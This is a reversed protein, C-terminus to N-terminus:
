SNGEGGFGDPFVFDPPAIPKPRPRVGIHRFTRTRLERNAKEERKTEKEAQQTAARIAAEREKRRHERIEDLCGNLMMAADRPIYGFNTARTMYDEVTLYGAEVFGCLKSIAVEKTLTQLVAIDREVIKQAREYSAGASIIARQYQDRDLRGHLFSRRLKALIEKRDLGEIFTTANEVATQAEADSYDISQLSYRYTDYDIGGQIVLRWLQMPNLKGDVKARQIRTSKRMVEALSQADKTGVGARNLWKPLDEFSIVGYVYGQRVTGLSIDTRNQARWHLRAIEETFGGRQAWEKLKGQWAESFGDDLGFEGAMTEDGIGDNLWRVCTEPGPINETLMEFYLLDVDSTFGQRKIAASYTEDSMLGARNLCNADKFSIAPLAARYARDFWPVCDGNIKCAFEWEDKSLQGSLRAATAAGTSLPNVQCSYNVSQVLSNKEAPTQTSFFSETATALILSSAYYDRRSNSPCPQPLVSAMIRRIGQILINIVFFIGVCATVVGGGIMGLDMEDIKKSAQAWGWKMQANLGDLAGERFPRAFLDRAAQWNAPDCGDVATEPGNIPIPPTNDTPPAACQADPQAWPPPWPQDAPPFPEDIPEGITHIPDPEDDSDLTTPARQGIFSCDPNDPTPICEEPPIIEVPPQHGNGNITATSDGMCDNPQDAPPGCYILEGDAFDWNGPDNVGCLPPPIDIPYGFPDTTPPCQELPCVPSDPPLTAPPEGPGSNTGAWLMYKQNPDCLASWTTGDSDLSVPAGEPAIWEGQYNPGPHSVGGTPKMAAGPSLHLQREAPETIYLDYASTNKWTPAVWCKATEPMGNADFTCGPLNCGSTDIPPNGPDIGIPPQIIPPVYPPQHGINEPIDFVDGEGVNVTSTPVQSPFGAANLVLDTLAQGTLAEPPPELQRYLSTLYAAAQEISTDLHEAVRQRLNDVIPVISDIKRDISGEVCARCEGVIARCDALYADIREDTTGRVTQLIGAAEAVAADARYASDKQSNVGGFGIGGLSLGGMMDDPSPIKM